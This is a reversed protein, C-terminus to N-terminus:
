VKEQVGEDEVVELRRWSIKEINDYWKYKMMQMWM